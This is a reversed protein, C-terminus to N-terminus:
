IKRRAAKNDTILSTLLRLIKKLGVNVKGPRSSCPKRFSCYNPMAELTPWDKDDSHDELVDFQNRIPLTFKSHAALQKVTQRQTPERWSESVHCRKNFSTNSTSGSALSPPPGATNRTREADLLSRLKKIEHSLQNNREEESLAQELLLSNTQKEKDVLKILAERDLESESLVSELTKIRLIQDNLRGLCETTLTIVDAIITSGYNDVIVKFAVQFDFALPKIDDDFNNLTTLCELDKDFTKDVAARTKVM